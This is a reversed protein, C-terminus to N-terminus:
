ELDPPPVESFKERLIEDLVEFNKDRNDVDLHKTRSIYQGAISNPLAREVSALYGLQKAKRCYGRFIDALRYNLWRPDNLM